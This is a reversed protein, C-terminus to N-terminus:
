LEEVFRYSTRMFIMYGLSFLGAALVGLMVLSLRAPLEGRMLMARYADILHVM